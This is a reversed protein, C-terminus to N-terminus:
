KLSYTKHDRVSNLSNHNFPTSIISNHPSFSFTHRNRVCDSKVFIEGWLIYSIFKNPFYKRKESIMKVSVKADHPKNHVFLIHQSAEAFHLPYTMSSHIFDDLINLSLCQSLISIIRSLSDSVIHSYCHCLSYQIESNNKKGHKKCKRHINMESHPVQNHQTNKIESKWQYINNKIKNKMKYENKMEKRIENIREPCLLPIGESM